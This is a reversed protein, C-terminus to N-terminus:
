YCSLAGPSPSYANWTPYSASATYSSTTPQSNTIQWTNTGANVVSASGNFTWDVYGLPVVISNTTGPDYMLYMRASFSRSYDSWSNSLAESLPSDNTSDAFDYPYNNDLYPASGSAPTLTVTCTQTGGSALSRVITDSNILQVWQYTNQGNAPATASVSVAFGPTGSSSGFGLRPGGVDIIMAQGTSKSVSISTPGAVNFTITTPTSFSSSGGGSMTYSYTQTLGSGASIWYYTYSAGSSSPLSTVSASARSASYGGVPNGSPTGWQQSALSM